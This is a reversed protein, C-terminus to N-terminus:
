TAMKVAAIKAVIQVDAARRIELRVARGEVYRPADDIVALIADPLGISHAALVAKEGLAFSARFYGRCPTLYVIARSKRKLRLSWGAAKGGFVWEESMPPHQSAIREKLSVWLDAAKGLSTAVAGTAPPHAKDVFNGPEITM